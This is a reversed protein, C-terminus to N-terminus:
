LFYRLRVSPYLKLIFASKPYYQLKLWHLSVVSNEFTIFYMVALGGLGPLEGDITVVKVQLKDIHGKDFGIGISSRTVVAISEQKEMGRKFNLIIM